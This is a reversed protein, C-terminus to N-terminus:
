TTHTAGPRAHQKGSGASSSAPSSQNKVREAPGTHSVLSFRPTNWPQDVVVLTYTREDESSVPCSAVTHATGDNRCNSAGAVVSITYKGGAVVQKTASEIRTHQIWM